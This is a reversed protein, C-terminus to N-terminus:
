SKPKAMKDHKAADEKALHNGAKVADAENMYEGHKTKGYWPDGEKHYVKTASNVWVKGAGGGPAQEIKSPDPAEHKAKAAKSKSEAPATAAGGQAYATAAFALSLVIMTVILKNSKM